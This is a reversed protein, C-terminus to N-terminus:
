KQMITSTTSKRDGAIFEGLYKWKNNNAYILKKLKHM